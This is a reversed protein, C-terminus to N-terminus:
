WRDLAGLTDLKGRRALQAERQRGELAYLEALRQLDAASLSTRAHLASALRAAADHGAPSFHRTVFAVADAVGPEDAPRRWLPLTLCLGVFAGGLLLLVRARADALSRLCMAVACLMALLWPLMSLSGYLGLWAGANPPAYDHAILVAFLQPLPRTLEPPLHPYYASPVGSALLAALLSGLALARAHPEARQAFRELAVLAAWAVFPVVLALYRPGITWGGRWNNMASIALVTLVFITLVCWAEARRTRDRLLLVFGPVGLCLLPTLPFLGAGLDFLLGYLASPSPGVAGYFGQHHQARFAENEVMLHGPTFPSGFARAQFHMMILAPVLGGAAFAALARLGGRTKLVFLAYVSLAISCPLGPYELLTTGAALLGIVFARPASCPTDRQRTEYLLMFASFASAASTTHSVLLMGYGYLLSGFAISFFVTDRLLPRESRRALWRHLFYLWLLTPLITAVVRCAWLAEVRDYSRGLARGLWLYLAYGPVALLSTGPAKVSYVHGAHTAADNVWGFRARMGDIEYRGEEVLAATMYFRVNENPNNIKSQYPFVYLYAFACIALAFASDRAKANTAPSM